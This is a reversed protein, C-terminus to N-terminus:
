ILDIYPRGDSQVLGTSMVLGIYYSLLFRIEDSEEEYPYTKGTVFLYVVFALLDSTLNSVQISAINNAM